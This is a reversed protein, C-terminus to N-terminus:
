GSGAPRDDVQLLRQAAAVAASADMGAVDVQLEATLDPRASAALGGVALRLQDGLAERSQQVVAHVGPLHGPMTVSLALLDARTERTLAVLSDAPVNAGLYRVEFGAMEFLDALVRAGLDHLEGSVCAVVVRKGNGPARPLHPYLHALALHSIATALHEHAITIQNDQWLQGIRYQAPQVVRLYLDPVSIGKDLGDDLVVRLAAKRDGVLQADLYRDALATTHVHM